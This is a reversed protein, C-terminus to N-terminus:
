AVPQGDFFVTRVLEATPQRLAEALSVHLLCLDARHGVSVDHPAGGPDDPPSLYGALATAASTREHPGIVAGSSTRRDRADAISRWPDPDGYPADSSSTVRVGARHLSEFPYLCTLDDPDVERLYDDGRLRL